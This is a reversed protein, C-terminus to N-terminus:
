RFLSAITVVGIWGLLTALAIWGRELWRGSFGILCDTTAVQSVMSAIVRRKVDVLDSRSLEALRLPDNSSTVDQVQHLAYLILVLWGLLLGFGVIAVTELSWVDIKDPLRLIGATAFAAFVISTSTLLTSAKANHEGIIGDQARAWDMLTQLVLELTDPDSGIAHSDYGSFDPEDPRLWIPIRHRAWALWRIRALHEGM